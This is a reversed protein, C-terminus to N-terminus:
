TYYSVLRFHRMCKTGKDGVCYGDYPGGGFGPKELAAEATGEKKMYADIDEIFVAVPIDNKTSHEEPKTPPQSMRRKGEAASADQVLHIAPLYQSQVDPRM